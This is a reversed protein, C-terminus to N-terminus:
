IGCALFADQGLETRNQGNQKRIVVPVVCTNIGSSVKILLLFKARLLSSLHIIPELKLIRTAQMETLM